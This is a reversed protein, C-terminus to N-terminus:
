KTLRVPGHKTFTRIPHQTPETSPLISLPELFLTIQDYTNLRRRHLIFDTTSYISYIRHLAVPRHGHPESRTGKCYEYGHSHWIPFLLDWHRRPHIRIQVPGSSLDQVQHHLYHKLRQRLSDGIKYSLQQSPTTAPCLHQRGSPSPLSSPVKGGASINLVYTVM